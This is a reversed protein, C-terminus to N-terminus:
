LVFSAAFPHFTAGTEQNMCGTLVFLLTLLLASSHKM